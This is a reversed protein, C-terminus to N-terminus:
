QLGDPLVLRRKTRLELLELSHLEQVCVSALLRPENELVRQRLIHGVFGKQCPPAAHQVSGGAAGELVEVGVSQLVGVIPQRMVVTSCVFVVLRKGIQHAEGLGCRPLVRV